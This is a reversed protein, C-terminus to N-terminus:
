YKGYKELILNNLLKAMSVERGQKKLRRKESKLLNHTKQTLWILKYQELQEEDRYM